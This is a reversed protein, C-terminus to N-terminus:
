SDFDLDREGLYHKIGKPNIFKLKVLLANM